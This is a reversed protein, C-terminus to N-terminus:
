TSCMQERERYLGLLYDSVDSTIVSCKCHGVVSSLGERAHVCGMRGVARSMPGEDDRNEMHPLRRVSLNLRKSLNGWVPVPLPRMLDRADPESDM